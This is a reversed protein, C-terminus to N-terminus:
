RPNLEFNLSIANMVQELTQGKEIYLERVVDRLGDWKEKSIRNHQRQSGTRPARRATEQTRAM